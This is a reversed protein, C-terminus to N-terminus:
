LYLSLVLTRAIFARVPQLPTYSPSAIMSRVILLWSSAKKLAFASTSSNLFGVMSQTNEVFLSQILAACSTVIVSEFRSISSSNKIWLTVVFCTHSENKSYLTVAALVKNPIVSNKCISKLRALM